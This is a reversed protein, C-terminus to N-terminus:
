LLKEKENIQIKNLMINDRSIGKMNMPNIEQLFKNGTCTKLNWLGNIEKLKREDFLQLKYNEQVNKNALVIIRQSSGLQKMYQRYEESLTISTCTKGSGLGHFLLLSNYPTQNSLYNRVFIQHPALEFDANCLTQAYEELNHIKGDYQTDNFEKKEAIKIIFNPDNLNPYLYSYENNDKLQEREREEKELLKKNNESAVLKIKKSKKSAQKM